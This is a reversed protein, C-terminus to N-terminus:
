PPRPPATRSGTLKWSPRLADSVESVWPSAGRHVEEKELLVATGLLHRQGRHCIAERKGPTPLGATSKPPRCTGNWSQADRDRPPSLGPYPWHGRTALEVLQPCRHQCCGSIQLLTLSPGLLLLGEGAAQSRWAVGAGEAMHARLRPTCLAARARRGQLTQASAARHTSGAWGLLDLSSKQRGRPLCSLWATM